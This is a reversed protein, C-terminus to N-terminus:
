KESEKEDKTEVDHRNDDCHDCIFLGAYGRLEGGSGRPYHEHCQDCTEMRKREAATTSNPYKPSGTVGCKSTYDRATVKRKKQQM